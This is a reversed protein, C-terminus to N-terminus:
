EYESLMGCIDLLDHALGWEGQNMAAIMGIRTQEYLTDLHSWLEPELDM